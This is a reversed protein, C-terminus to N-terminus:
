IRQRWHVERGPAQSLGMTDVKGNPVRPFETVSEIRLPWHARGFHTRLTRLMEHLAAPTPAPTVVLVHGAEGASDTEQYFAAQGSWCNSLTSLLAPLSVKEGYRKFVENSRGLLEWSGDANQQALDGTPVWDARTVAHFGQDDVYGVSSYPSRFLLDGNGGTKLEIGPLPRGINAGIVSAEARRLTLRPMAEACGYNNFIQANPFFETLVELKDQPFRGGAFHLRIIGPFTSGALSQVLLPVQAGVLCLMGDTAQLLQQKLVDPHSFGPTLILHRQMVRSWLWQNVFAYCYTLPLAVVAQKVPESEQHKHLAGVLAASRQKAGIVLKPKGTSGSTLLGFHGTQLAPPLAALASEIWEKGVSNKQPVFAFTTDADWTEDLARVDGVVESDTLITM